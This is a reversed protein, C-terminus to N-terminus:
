HIVRLFYASDGRDIIYLLSCLSHPHRSNTSPIFHNVHKLVSGNIYLMSSKTLYESLLPPSPTSEIFNVRSSSTALVCYNCLVTDKKFKLVKNSISCNSLFIAYRNRINHSMVYCICSRFRFFLLNDISIIM